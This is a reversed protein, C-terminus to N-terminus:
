PFFPQPIGLLVAYAAFLAASALVTRVFFTKRTRM